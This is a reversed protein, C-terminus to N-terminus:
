GAPRLRSGLSSINKEEGCGIRLWM